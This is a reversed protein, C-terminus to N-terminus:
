AEEGIPIPPAVLGSARSALWWGHTQLTTSAASAGTAAVSV